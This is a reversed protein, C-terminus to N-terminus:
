GYTVKHDQYQGVCGMWDELYKQYSPSWRYITRMPKGCEMCIRRNSECNFDDCPMDPYGHHHEAM